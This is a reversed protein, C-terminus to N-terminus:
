TLTARLGDLERATWRKVFFSRGLIVVGVRSNRLGDDIRERLSDGCLFEYADFWLTSM